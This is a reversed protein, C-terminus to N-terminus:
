EPSHEPEPVPRVEPEVQIGRQNRSSESLERLGHVNILKVGHVVVPHSNVILFNGAEKRHLFVSESFNGRIFDFGFGLGFGL